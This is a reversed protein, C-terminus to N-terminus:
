NETAILLDLTRGQFNAVRETATVPNQSLKHFEEKRDPLSWGVPSKKPPLPLNM